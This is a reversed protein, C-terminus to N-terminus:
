PAGKRFTPRGPSLWGEIEQWTPRNVTYDKWRGMPRKSGEEHSPIVAFGADYWSRAAALLPSAPAPQTTM